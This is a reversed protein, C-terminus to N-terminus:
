QVRKFPSYGGPPTITPALVVCGHPPLDVELLGFRTKLDPMGGLLDVMPISDMLKSDPLLVTETVREDSPNALVLV